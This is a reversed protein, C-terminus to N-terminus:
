MQSKLFFNPDRRFRAEFRKMWRDFINTPVVMQGQGHLGSDFSQMFQFLDTAIKQAVYLRRENDIKIPLNQINDLSELSVGFTVMLPPVGSSAQSMASIEMELLEEHESWGTRFVCSPQNPTLAGLLAFGTAAQPTKTSGLSSTMVAVQWYFLVGYNPPLSVQPLLFAVIENISSIPKSAPTQTSDVDATQTSTSTILSPPPVWQLTFKTGSDDAPLFDTRVPGGPIVIGFLNQFPHQATNQRSPPWAWGETLMPTTVTLDTSGLVSPGGVSFDVDMNTDCRHLSEEVVIQVAALPDTSGHLSSVERKVTARHFERHKGGKIKRTSM